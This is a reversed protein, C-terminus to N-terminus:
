TRMRELVRRGLDSRLVKGEWQIKAAATYALRLAEALHPALACVNLVRVGATVLSGDLFKTGAHFIEVGPVEEAEELGEILAGTRPRDPYGPSALVVCAAAERNFHLRSTSFRGAAGDALIPLLDDELRLLLVQAEPDGFRVNFELVKPGESTMMLGAYLVGIFPRNEEGLGALAPRMILDLVSAAQEASLVGSPSHAGMGGTNPGTDGEGVRKYDKSSALPLLREGDALGMFSVEEGELLEEVVVREASDGFRREEFFVKLAAELDDVDRVILVGKGAALGDAKLVTPLGLKKVAERTEELSHAVVFDATPIAHRRMFEKAFVKSCELEAAAQRPAFIPLGRSAFEDAIGLALPLEPGVVTLDIEMEAAFDALRPVEDVAIPILDAIEAIGPNGPACYLDTLRQSRRLKWCLAHERGGGGVVLVKM